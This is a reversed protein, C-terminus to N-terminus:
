LARAPFGGAAITSRSPTTFTHGYLICYRVVKEFLWTLVSARRDEDPTVLKYLPDNHFARALLAAARHRQSPELHVPHHEETM